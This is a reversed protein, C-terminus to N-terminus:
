CGYKIKLQRRKERSVEKPVDEVNNIYHYHYIWTDYEMQKFLYNINFSCGVDRYIEEWYQTGALETKLIVKKAKKSKKDVANEFISDQRRGNKIFDKHHGIEHILDLVIEIKSTKPTTYIWITSGDTAWEAKIKPDYPRKFFIKVGHGRAYHVLRKIEEERTIKIM